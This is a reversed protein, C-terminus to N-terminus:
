WSDPARVADLRAFFRLSEMVRHTQYPPCRAEHDEEMMEREFDGPEVEGDILDDLAYFRADYRIFCGPCYGGEHIVCSTSFM